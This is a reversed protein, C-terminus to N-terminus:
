TFFNRNSVRKTQEKGDGAWRLGVKGFHLHLGRFNGAVDVHEFARTSIDAHRNTIIPKQNNVILKRWEGVLDPGREFTNGILFQVENQVSVPVSIVGAAVNSKSRFRRDDRMIVHALSKSGLLFRCDEVGGRRRRRFFRQWHDREILRQRHMEITFVNARNVERM